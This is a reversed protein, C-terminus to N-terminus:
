GSSGRSSNKRITEKVDQRYSVFKVAEFLVWSCWFRGLTEGEPVYLGTEKDLDEVAIRQGDKDLIIDEPLLDSSTLIAMGEDQTYAVAVGDEELGSITEVLLIVVEPDLRGSLEAGRASSLDIADWSNELEEQLAADRSDSKMGRTRIAAKGGARLAAEAMLESIPSPKSDVWDIYAKTKAHRITWKTGLGFPDPVERSELTKFLKGLNSM